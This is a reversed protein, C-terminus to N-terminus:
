SCVEGGEGQASPPLPPASLVTFILSGSCGGKVPSGPASQRTGKIYIPLNLIHLSVLCSGNAGGGGGGSSMLFGQSPSTPINPPPFEIDKLLFGVLELM